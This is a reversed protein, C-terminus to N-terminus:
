SSQQEMISFLRQLGPNSCKPHEEMWNLLGVSYLDTIRVFLTRGKPKHKVKVPTQVYLNPEEMESNPFLLSFCGLCDYPELLVVFPPLPVPRITNTVSEARQHWVYCLVTYIAETIATIWADLEM